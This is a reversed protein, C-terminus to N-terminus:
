HTKRLAGPYQPLPLDGELRDTVYGHALYQHAQIDDLETIQGRKVGNGTGDGNVTGLVDILWRVRM